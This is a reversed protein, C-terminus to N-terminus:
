IPASLMKKLAYHMINIFAYYADAPHSNHM